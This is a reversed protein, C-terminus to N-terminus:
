KKEAQQKEALLGRLQELQVTGPSLLQADALATEALEYHGLNVYALALQAYTELHQDFILARRLHLAALAWMKQRAYGAGRLRFSLEEPELDRDLRLLIRRDEIIFHDMVKMLLSISVVTLILVVLESGVVAYRMYRLGVVALAGDTCKGTTCSLTGLEGVLMLFLSALSGLLRLGEFGFVIFFFPQRRTLVGSIILIALAGPLLSLFFLAPSVLAFIQRTEGALRGLYIQFLQMVDYADLQFAVYDLLLLPLLAGGLVSIAELAILLWYSRTLMEVPRVKIWLKNDCTSCRCDEFATPSACYPCSMEDDFTAASSTPGAPLPAVDRHATDGRYVVGAEDPSRAYEAAGTDEFVPVYLHDSVEEFTIATDPISAALAKGQQIGDL